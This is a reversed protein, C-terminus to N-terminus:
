EDLRGALRVAGVLNYAVNGPELQEFFWLRRQAFSLPMRGTRPVREVPPTAAGNGTRLAREVCEALNAVTPREFIPTLPLEVKFRERVRSILQTALLSHGGAAFFDDEVGVEALGLVEA